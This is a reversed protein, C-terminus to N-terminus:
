GMYPNVYGGGYDPYLVTRDGGFREQGAGKYDCGGGVRISAVVSRRQIAATNVIM